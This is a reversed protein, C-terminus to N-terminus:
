RGAVPAIVDFKMRREFAKHEKGDVEVYAGVVLNVRRNEGPDGLLLNRGEAFRVRRQDLGSFYFDRQAPNTDGASADTSVWGYSPVYYQVWCRYGPDTEKGENKELLRSGFQLRAPIGRARALAIFLAHQDTCGGGKMDLCYGASGQGSSKPASGGLSYHDSHDVVYDYILRAQKVINTEKGCVEAALRDIRDNVEMLPVDRRLHEALRARDDDSLNGARKPDLKVSMVDREVIFHTDISVPRGNPGKVEAYFYRSGTTPERVILYGAPADKITLSRTRQAADDDPVWFWVKVSRADAPIDKVELRHSVDYSVPPAKPEAAHTCAVLSLVCSLGLIGLAPNSCPFRKM